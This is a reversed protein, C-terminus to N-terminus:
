QLTSRKSSNSFPSRSGLSLAIASIAFASFQRNLSMIPSALIYASARHNSALLTVGQVTAKYDKALAM